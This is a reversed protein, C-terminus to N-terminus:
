SDLKRGRSTTSAFRKDYTACNSKSPHPTRGTVWGATDFCPLFCLPSAAVLPRTEDKMWWKVEALLTNNGKLWSQRALILVNLALNNIVSQTQTQDRTVSLHSDNAGVILVAIFNMNM